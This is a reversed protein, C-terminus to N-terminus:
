RYLKKECIARLMIESSSQVKIFLRLIIGYLGNDLKDFLINIM